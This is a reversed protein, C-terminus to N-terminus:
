YYYFLYKINSNHLYFFIQLGMNFFSFFLIELDSKKEQGTLHTLLSCITVM